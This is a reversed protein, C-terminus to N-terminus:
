NRKRLDELTQRSGAIQDTVLKEDGYLDKHKSRRSISGEEKRRLYAYGKYKHAM